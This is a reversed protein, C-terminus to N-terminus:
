RPQEARSHNASRAGSFGQRRLTVYPATGRACLRGRSEERNTGIPDTGRRVDHCQHPLGAMRSTIEETIVDVFYLKEPIGLNEFSLVTIMKRAAGDQSTTDPGSPFFGMWGLYGALVLVLLMAIEAAIWKMRGAYAVPPSSDVGIVERAPERRLVQLQTQVERVTQFRSNPDKELSPDCIRGLQAPLKPRVESLWPAKDKLISSALAM